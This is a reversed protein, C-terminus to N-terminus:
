SATAVQVQSVTTAATIEVGLAANSALRGAYIAERDDETLGGWVGYPEKVALAHQACQLRM